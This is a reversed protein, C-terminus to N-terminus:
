HQQQIQQFREDSTRLAALADERESIDHVTVVCATRIASGPDPYARYEVPISTGDKRWIVERTSHVPAKSLLANRLPCETRPYPSGDPRSHHILGHVPQGIIESARYGTMRLLSQNCFTARGHGDVGVIGEALSNLVLQMESRLEQPSGKLPQLLPM